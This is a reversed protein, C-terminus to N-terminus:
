GVRKRAPFQSSLNFMISYGLKLNREPDALAFYADFSEIKQLMGAYAREFRAILDSAYQRSIQAAQALRAEIVGSGAIIRSSLARFHMMISHLSGLIVENTRRVAFQQTALAREFESIIRREILPLKEELREWSDNIIMAAISPTSVERDAVLCAIPTDRDHGIGCMTPIASAFIDRAVLENNFAQLDELSGGGRIIVLVDLGPMNRNFWTIAKTVNPVAQAGEVRADHLYVNCGRAALNKRFDDIVAGTRSTIVGITTIFEPLARKRRFLGEAELKQKLLEYAKRLSGEGALTVSDVQFSLRGKPKYIELFGGIKIEMGDDLSFGLSRYMWPRMYCNM